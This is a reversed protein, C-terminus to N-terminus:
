RGAETADDGRSAAITTRIWECVEAEVWASARVGLKVPPPFTGDAVRRYVTAKSMGTQNVVQGIKILRTRRM